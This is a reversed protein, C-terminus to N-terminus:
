TRPRSAHRDTGNRTKRNKPLASGAYKQVQRVFLTTAPPADKRWILSTECRPASKRLSEPLSRYVVGARRLQAISKPVLAVGLGASVLNVITQMQIAQQAIHPTIGLRYYFALIGDYLSPATERPFIVLPQSLLETSTLRNVSPSTSRPVALVLPESGVELRNLDATSSLATGPSHLVFGADLHADALAELQVNSTAEHLSVSVGPYARRFERLWQPLPGFGVTSVFGLRLTGQRGEAADLALAPIGEAADLLRRIPEVLALGAPSLAVRRRTREFLTVSLRAELKQIAQTLPPQTMGLAKAAKRFHLLEAVVLFQQLSRLDVSPPQATRSPNM